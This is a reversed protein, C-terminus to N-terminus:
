REMERKIYDRDIYFKMSIIVGPFKNKINIVNQKDPRKNLDNDKNFAIVKINDGRDKFKYKNNFIIHTNGTTITMIPECGIDLSDGLLQFNEILNKTGQGRDKGYDKGRM